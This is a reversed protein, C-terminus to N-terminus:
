SQQSIPLALFAQHDLWFLCNVRKDYLIGTLKLRLRYCRVIM